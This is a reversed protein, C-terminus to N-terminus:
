PSTTPSPTPTALNQSAGQLTPLTPDNTVLTIDTQPELIQSAGQLTRSPSTGLLPSSVVAPTDIQSAPGFRTDPDTPLPSEPHMPSTLKSTIRQRVEEVGLTNFLSSPDFGHQKSFQRATLEMNQGTFITQIVDLIGDACSAAKVAAAAQSYMVVDSIQVVKEPFPLKSSQIKHIQENGSTAIAALEEQLNSALAHASDYGARKTGNAEATDRAAQIGRAFEMRLSDATTGAQNALPDVMIQQLQDSYRTFLSEINARSASATQMTSLAMDSPWHAGILLETFDGEPLNTM